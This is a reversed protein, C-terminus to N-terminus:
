DDALERLQRSPRHLDRQRPFFDEVRVTSAMGHEHPDLGPERLLTVDGAAVQPGPEVAARVARVADRGGEIRAHDIRDGVLDGYVFELARADEGVLRRTSGLAAVTRD